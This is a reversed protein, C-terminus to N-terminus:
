EYSGVLRDLGQFHREHRCATAYSVPRRAALAETLGTNTATARATLLLADSGAGCGYGLVAVRDGPGALELARALGLLPAAAGVDGIDHAVVCPAACAGPLGLRKALRVPTAADPQPGAFFRPPGPMAGLQEWAATCHDILGVDTAAMVAGGTRIHREGDTRFGDNTDSTASGVADVTALAADRTVVVAAAGSGATYEQPDGPAVHPGLTDTGVALAAEAFGAGVWALACLLAATGSKGSFQVDAAFVSRPLGAMDVLLAAAAKTLYPSTQSGFFVAGPPPGEAGRLATRAAEAALTVADADPDCVSRHTVGRRRVVELPVNGWVEDIEEVALRGTPLAVGIGSVGVGNRSPSDGDGPFGFRNWPIGTDDTGDSM